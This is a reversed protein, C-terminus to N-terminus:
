RGRWGHRAQKLLPIVRATAEARINKRPWKRLFSLFDKAIPSLAREKHYIIFTEIKRDLGPVKIVKLDGRIIAAEAVNWHFIGLGMGAKVTSMMADISECYIVTNMEYGQDRMDKILKESTSLIGKIKLVVLPERCLEELSLKGKKALPHNRSVIAVAKEERYIEYVISKSYTPNTILALEIESNQVMSELIPSFDTQYFLQLEPRAKKFVALVSPLLFGSPGHSSGIRLSRANVNSSDVRLDKKLSEAISLIEKASETFKRGAETLEVGTSYKKYLKVGCEKGLLKIHLSVAPQSIHHENAAKSFSRYKAVSLMIELQHLTM